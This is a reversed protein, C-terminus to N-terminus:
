DAQLIGDIYIPTYTATSASSLQDDKDDDLLCQNESVSQIIKMNTFCGTKTKGLIKKRQKADYIFKRRVLESRLDDFCCEKGKEKKWAAMVDDKHVVGKGEEVIQLNDTIFEIFQNNANAVDNALQKFQEPTTLGEKFYIKAGEAIFKFLARSGDHSEFFSDITQDVWYDRKVDPNSPFPIIEDKKYFRSVFNIARLRRDIGGDSAFKPNQNAILFLKANNKICVPKQQYLFPINMITGDSFDKLKDADSQKNKSLENSWVIRKGIVCSINKNYDKCDKEFTNSAIKYVYQPFIKSLQEFVFSKGNSGIGTMSYFAQQENARGTMAYGLLSKYYKIRWDEMSCIQSIIKEVRQYAEESPEHYPLNLKCSLYDDFKIRNDFAGTKLNYIGNDFAICDTLIDLKEVFKNDVLLDSFHTKMVSHNGCTDYKVCASIFQKRDEMLQKRKDDNLGDSMLEKSIRIINFNFYKNFLEIFKSAPNKIISWLGTKKDFVYWNDLCYRMSKFLETSIANCMERMGKTFISSCMYYNTKVQGQVDDDDDDVILCRIPFYKKYLEPNDQQAWMKLSGIRFAKEDQSKPKLTEYKSILSSDTDPFTGKKSFALWYNINDDQSLEINRLCMGVEIWTKYDTARQESLCNIYKSIDTNDVYSPESKNIQIKNVKPPSLLQAGEYREFLFDKMTGNIIHHRTETNLVGWKGSRQREKAEDISLSAHPKLQNPLRFLTTKYVNPDVCYDHHEKNWTDWYQKQTAITAEYEPIIIHYSNKKTTESKTIIINSKFYDNFYSVIEDLPKAMQEKTGDIDCYLPYITDDNILRIHYSVNDQNAELLNTAESISVEKRTKELSQFYDQMAYLTQTKSSSIM